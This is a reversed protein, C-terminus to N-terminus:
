KVLNELSCFTYGEGRLTDIVSALADKNDRSVAHLLLICGNHVGGTIAKKAYDAGKQNNVEWDKYAFSWFVNTYGLDNTVALTRESFEGRPARFFKMRVGFEDYFDQELTLVEDKIEDVSKLEPMSPHHVSHNGVIHGEDIMRKILAKENKFYPATIFFAAPVNKQKLVDLIDATYGNEYGEDFTLYLVKEDNGIYFSEYKELLSCISEPVSPPESPNKKLGWCIKKNSLEGYGNPNLSSPVAIEENHWTEKSIEARFTSKSSCSTTLITLAVILIIKKLIFGWKM